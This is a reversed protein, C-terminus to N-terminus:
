RKRGKPMPKSMGMGSKCTWAHILLVLAAIVIVWKSWSASVFLAFVLIVLAIITECWSHSHGM